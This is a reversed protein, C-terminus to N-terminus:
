RDIDVRQEIAGGVDLDDARDRLRPEDDVHGPWLSLGELAPEMRQMVIELGLVLPSEPTQHANTADGDPDHERPASRPLLRTQPGSNCGRDADAEWCHISRARNKRVTSGSPQQTAVLFLSIM